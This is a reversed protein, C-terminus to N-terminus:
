EPFFAAELETSLWHYVPLHLEQIEVVTDSPVKIALDVLGGLEGGSRGTLAISQLGFAKAVLAANCVNKSKGSTSLALLVDGARGLGYVQQAFTMDYDRDNATATLLSMQSPLAIAPLAGELRSAIETGAGGLSELKAAHGAPIPRRRLFGKMLEAVIHESDAASGGNGCVLMKNGRQYAKQLIEFAAKLEEQCAELSPCRDFLAALLTSM